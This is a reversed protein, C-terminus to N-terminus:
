MMDDGLSVVNGVRADAEILSLHGIEKHVGDLLHSEDLRRRDL